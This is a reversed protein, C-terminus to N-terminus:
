NREYRWNHTKGDALWELATALRLERTAVRKAETLWEIYEKRQSYNFGEFTTRAKRNAQLATAFYDPITLAKEEKPRARTPSKIGAQNLAAAKKVCRLLIKESPLDALSTIRGFQGMGDRDDDVPIDFILSGKWFGFACHKKFAAM